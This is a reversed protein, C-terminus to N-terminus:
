LSTIIRTKSVPRPICGIGWSIWSRSSLLTVMLSKLCRFAHGNQGFIAEDLDVKSRCMRVCVPSFGYLHECHVSWNATDLLRYLCMLIFCASGISGVVLFQVIDLNTYQKWPLFTELSQLPLNRTSGNINNSFLTKIIALTKKKISKVRYNM